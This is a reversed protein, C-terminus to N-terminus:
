GNMRLLVLISFGLIIRYYVFPMLSYKRFFRMLFGIVLFGSIASSIVGATVIWLDFEAPHHVIKLGHMAVAGAILPTSLLFSFKAAAERTMNRFMGMSITFGSRSVGPLIAIAQAAGILLSDFIKMDKIQRNKGFKEAIWFVLSAALLIVAILLPNRLHEEAFHNLLYGAIAGPITAAIVLGLLRRDRILMDLWDRYFFAFVAILTGAHLAVDFSLTDVTGSLNFLKAALILHATSSVPLFETLGQLIGLLIAEIM